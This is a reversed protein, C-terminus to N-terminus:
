PAARTARASAASATFRSAAQVRSTLVDLSEVTEDADLCSPVCSGAHPGRRVRMTRLGLARAGVFDKTPNDGVYIAEGAGIGRSALAVLAPVYASAHPKQLTPGADWTYREVVFRGRLGLAQVKARQVTPDGDTVLGTVIRAAEAADLCRAADPFLTLEPRHSRYAHVLTPLVRAIRDGEIGLAALAHEITHGRGHTALAADLEARLCSADISLSRAASSAVADFGSGVFDLEPYLTDDLDFLIARLV